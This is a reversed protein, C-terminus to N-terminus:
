NKLYAMVAGGGVIAVIGIGILQSGLEAFSAITERSATGM